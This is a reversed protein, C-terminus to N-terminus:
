NSIYVYAVKLPNIEECLKFCLQVDWIGIERYHVIESFFVALQSRFKKGQDKAARFDENKIQSGATKLYFTALM